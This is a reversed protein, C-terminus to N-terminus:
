LPAMPVPAVSYYIRFTPIPLSRVVNPALTYRVADAYDLPPDGADPARAAEREFDDLLAAEDFDRSFPRTDMKSVVVYQPGAYVSRLFPHERLTDRQRAVLDAHKHPHLLRPLDAAAYTRARVVRYHYPSNRFFREYGAKLEKPVVAISYASHLADVRRLWNDAQPSRRPM